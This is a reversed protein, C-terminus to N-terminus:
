RRGWIMLSAELTTKATSARLTITDTTTTGIYITMTDSTTTVGQIGSSVVGEVKKFKKSQYTDGDAFRVTVFELGPVWARGVSLIEANAM